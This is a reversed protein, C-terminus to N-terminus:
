LIPGITSLAHVLLGFHIVFLALEVLPPFVLRQSVGTFSLFRLVAITLALNLCAIVLLGPILVGGISLDAIM